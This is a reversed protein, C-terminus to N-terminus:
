INRRLFYTTDRNSIKYIDMLYSIAKITNTSEIADPLFGEKSVSLQNILYDRAYKWHPQDTENFHKGFGGTPLIKFDANKLLEKAGHKLRTKAILSLNGINDNPAGLIMIRGDSSINDM